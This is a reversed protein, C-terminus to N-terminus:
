LGHRRGSLSKKLMVIGPWTITGVKVASFQKRLAWVRQPKVISKDKPNIAGEAGQSASPSAFTYMEGHVSLAAFNDGCNVVKAIAVSSHPRHTRLALTFNHVPFRSLIDLFPRSDPSLASM